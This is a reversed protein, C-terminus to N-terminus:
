PKQDRPVTSPPTMPTALAANPSESPQVKVITATNTRSM